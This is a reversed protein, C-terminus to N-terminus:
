FFLTWLRFIALSAQRSQSCPLIWCPHSFSIASQSDRLEVTILWESTGNFSPQHDVFYWSSHFSIRIIHPQIWQPESLHHLLAVPWLCCDFLKGLKKPLSFPQSLPVVQDEIMFCPKNWIWFDSWLDYQLRVFDVYPYIRVFPFAVSTKQHDSYSWSNLWSMKLEFMAPLQISRLFREFKLYVQPTVLLAQFLCDDVNLAWQAIGLRSKQYYNYIVM